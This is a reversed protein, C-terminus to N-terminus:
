FIRADPGLTNLNVEREKFSEIEEQYPYKDTLLHEKAWKLESLGLSFGEMVCAEGWPIQILTNRGQVLDERLFSTGGIPNEIPLFSGDNMKLGVHYYKSVKM